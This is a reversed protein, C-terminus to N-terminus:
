TDESALWFHTKKDFSTTVLTETSKSAFLDRVPNSHGELHEVISSSAIDWVCVVSEHQSNGYLYQGSKSWALKPQSYCDNKHGYLNRVQNSSRWDMIINRSNDTALALYDSKFPSIDMVAFSVHDDFFANGPGRNLHFKQQSFNDQLDFCILNPSGRAYCCLHDERFCISEIPGSLQLNQVKELTAGTADILNWVLKHVQICGDASATALVNETPSWALCRVYKGHKIIGKGVEEINIVSGDKEYYIVHVSGDMCGAAVFKTRHGKRSFDVSIVPAECDVRSSNEVVQQPTHSGFACNWLTLSLNRDAGGTALVSDDNSLSCCLVNSNGHCKELLVSKTKAYDGDGSKIFHDINESSQVNRNISTESTGAGSFLEAAAAESRYIEVEAKLAENEVTLVNCRQKLAKVQEKLVENELRASTLQDAAGIDGLLDM